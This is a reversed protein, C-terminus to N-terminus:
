HTGYNKGKSEIYQKKLSRFKPFDSKQTSKRGTLLIIRGKHEEHILYLRLDGTKIEYERVKEGHPTVDKFKKEPLLKLEAVQLMIAKIQNLQKALNGERTIQKKFEDYINAGDIVLSFFSIRGKVDEIEETEFKRM